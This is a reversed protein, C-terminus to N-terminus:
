VFVSVIIAAIAVILALAELWVRWSNYWQKKQRQKQEEVAEQSERYEELNDIRNEHEKCPLGGFKEDLKRELSDKMESIKDQTNGIERALIKSDKGEVLNQLDDDPV